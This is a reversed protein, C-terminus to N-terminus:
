MQREKGALMDEFENSSVPAQDFVLKRKINYRHWDTGFHERHEARDTFTQQCTGCTLGEGGNDNKEIEGAALQQQQINLRELAAQNLQEQKNYMAAVDDVAWNSEKESLPVMTTLIDQPLEFVSMPIADLTDPNFVAKKVM